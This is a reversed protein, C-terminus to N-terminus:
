RAALEKTDADFSDQSRHKDADFGHQMWAGAGFGVLFIPPGFAPYEFAFALGIAFAAGGGGAWILNRWHFHRRLALYAIWVVSTLAALVLREVM